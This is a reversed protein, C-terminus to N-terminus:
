CVAYPKNAENFLCFKVSLYTRSGDGHPVTEELDVPVLADLVAQDNKRFADAVERPFIDYDTKGQVQENTLNFLQSFRENILTYRGELDKVCIVSSTNNLIGNLRQENLIIKKYSDILKVNANNITDVLEDLEDKETINKKRNLSLPAHPQGLEHSSIHNVIKSLHRTFM